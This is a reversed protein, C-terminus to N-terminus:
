NHNELFTRYKAFAMPRAHFYGQMMDCKLAALHEQQAKTEVGEAVSLIGFDKALHIATKTIILNSKDTDLNDIFTKDIKLYDVPFQHLYSLSSHGTGFDDIAIGIHLEGLAKLTSLARDPDHMLASETIEFVVSGEPIDYRKLLAAVRDYFAADFLSMTSINIALTIPFNEQNLARITKFSEEIVWDSLINILSTKEVLPIFYEPQIAGYEPHNWRLLVEANAYTNQNNDWQPQFVISFDGDELSKKVSGLIRIDKNTKFHNEDYIMTGSNNVEASRAALVAHNISDYISANYPSIGISIELYVPINELEFPEYFASKLSVFLDDMADREAVALLSHDDKAYVGVIEPFRQEIRDRALMQLKSYLDDSLFDTLDFYNDFRIQIFVYDKESGEESSLLHEDILQSIGPIDTGPHHTFLHLRENHYQVIMSKFIGFITGVLSFVMTRYIWNLPEQMIANEVDVPMFPGLLLGGAIGALLGTKWGFLMGSLVIPVYMTHSYVYQIGGTFYVLIVIGVMMLLMSLGFGIQVKKTPAILRNM